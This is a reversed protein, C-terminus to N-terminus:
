ATYHHHSEMGPHSAVAAGPPMAAFAPPVAKIPSLDMDNPGSPALDTCPPISIHQQHVAAPRQSLEVAGASPTTGAGSSPLRREDRSASPDKQLAQAPAATAAQIPDPLHKFFATHHTSSERQRKAPPECDVPVASAHVGGMEAARLGPATTASTPQVAAAPLKQVAIGPTAVEGECDGTALAAHGGAGGRSSKESVPPAASPIPCDRAARVTHTTSCGGGTASLAGGGGSGTRGGVTSAVIGSGGAAGPGPCAGSGGRSSWSHGSPQAHLSTVSSLPSHESMVDAPSPPFALVSTLFKVSVKQCLLVGCATRSVFCSCVM